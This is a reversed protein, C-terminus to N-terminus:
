KSSLLIALEDEIVQLCSGRIDKPAGTRRLVAYTDEKEFFIKVALDTEIRKRISQRIGLRKGVRFLRDKHIFTVAGIRIENNIAESLKLNSIPTIFSWPATVDDFKM